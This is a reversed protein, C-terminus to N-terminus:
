VSVTETTQGVPVSFDVIVTSGVALTVGQRLVTQFGEHSTRVNYTGVPLQAITYRGQSDTTTSRTV